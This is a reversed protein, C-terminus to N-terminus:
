SQEFYRAIEWETVVGMFRQWEHEAVAAYHDVVADGFARRATDSAHLLAAAKGLDGPLPRRAQDYANGVIPPGPDLRREIGEAVSALLAAIALYPNVDAGTLRLEMRLAEPSEGVTRVSVTRNDYGWTAGAGAVLEDRSVRRYSNVTPAYWPMLDAAHELVGGVAWRFVDSLRDPAGADFFPFGGSADRLSLHLHGSSGIEATSPRAMFTASLGDLASVEKVAMKFLTHGDATAMAGGHRMNLEWQGLGWEGQGLELAIGSRELGDGLRRFFPEMLNGPSILYDAHYRTTPRLDRYGVTRADEYSDRYLYFELESGVFAEYGLAALRQVQTALITRPAIAVADGDPERLDALCVVVGDLWGMPRLTALDPVLRFDRWGSHFGAYDVQLELSQEVDWALACTCADIGDLRERFHAPSMRRGFLRGQMDPAALVVTKVGHDQLADPDLPLPTASGGLDPTATM